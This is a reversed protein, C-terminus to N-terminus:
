ALLPALAASATEGIHVLFDTGLQGSFRQPDDSGLVLVGFTAGGAALPLIVVSQAATPDDLWRVAEFDNNPGCYPTRLGATFLRADDSV